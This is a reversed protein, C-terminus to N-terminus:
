DQKPESDTVKKEKIGKSTKESSETDSSSASVKVKLAEWQKLAERAEQVTDVHVGYKGSAWANVRKVALPIALELSVGTDELISRAVNSIFTPLGYESTYQTWSDRGPPRQMSYGGSGLAVILDEDDQSLEVRSYVHNELKSLRKM